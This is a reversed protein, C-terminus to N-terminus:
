FLETEWNRINDMVIKVAPIDSIREALVILLEKITTKQHRKLNIVKRRNIKLRKILKQM